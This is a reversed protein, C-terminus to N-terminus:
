SIDPTKFLRGLKGQFPFVSRDDGRQPSFDFDEIEFNSWYLQDFNVLKLNERKPFISRDHAWKPGNKRSLTAFKASIRSELFGAYNGKFPFISQDDALPRFLDLDFIEFNSGTLRDIKVPKLIKGLLSFVETM